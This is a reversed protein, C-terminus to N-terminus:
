VYQHYGCRSHSYCPIHYLVCHISVYFTLTTHRPILLHSTQASLKTIKQTILSRSVLSTSYFLKVLIQSQTSLNL